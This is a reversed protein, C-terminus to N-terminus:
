NLDLQGGSDFLKIMEVQYQSSRCKKMKKRKMLEIKEMATKSQGYFMKKWVEKDALVSDNM